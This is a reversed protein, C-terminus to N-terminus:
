LRGSRRVRECDAAVRDRRGALVTDRGAGCSVRDRGGRRVLIRDRGGDGTIRDPGRTGAITEARASGYITEGRVAPCRRLVSKVCVELPAAPVHPDLTARLTARPGSSVTVRAVGNADSRVATAGGTVTAGEVARRAGTADFAFVRVEFEQGPRARAPAALGLEDGTAENQASDVFYWLVDDGPKVSYADGGVEPSVHNVKYLWYSTNGSAFDSGAGCVLLGFDFEDSVGLPTLVPNVRSADVLAGLATPGTLRKTEGTGKCGRGKETVLSTSDTMYRDATLSREEAGEVRLDVPIPRAAASAALLCTAVAAAAACSIFRM